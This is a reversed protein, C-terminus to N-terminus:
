LIGYVSVHVYMYVYICSYFCNQLHHLSSLALILSVLATYLCCSLPYNCAVTSSNHTIVILSDTSERHLSPALVGMLRLLHLPESSEFVAATLGKLCMVHGAEICSLVRLPSLYVTVTIYTFNSFGQNRRRRRGRRRM